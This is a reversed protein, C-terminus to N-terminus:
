DKKKGYSRILAQEFFDGVDFSTNKPASAKGKVAPRPANKEKELAAEIDAVTHLGAEHWRALIKDTYALTAKATTNVMIDYAIGVIDMNYGYDSFWRMLMETEKKTLTREGLGFLTRVRGEDSHAAEYRRIYRDLDTHTHVGEDYLSIATTEFYRVGRKGLRNVCFDLLTIIYDQSVDLERMLSVIKTIEASTLQKGLIVSCTELCGQLADEDIIQASEAATAQPLDSSAVPMKKREPSLAREPTEAASAPAGSAALVGSECWFSLAEAVRAKKLATARALEQETASYGYSALAFLVRWEEEGAERLADTGMLDPLSVEHSGMLITYETKM